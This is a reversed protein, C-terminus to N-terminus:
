ARQTVGRAARIMSPHVRGQMLSFPQPTSEIARATQRTPKCPALFVVQRWRVNMVKAGSARM